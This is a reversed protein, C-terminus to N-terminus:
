GLFLTITFIISIPYEILLRDFRTNWAVSSFDTLAHKFYIL